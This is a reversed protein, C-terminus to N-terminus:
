LQHDSFQELDLLGMEEMDLKIMEATDQVAKGNYPEEELLHFLLANVAFALKEKVDRDPGKLLRDSLAM